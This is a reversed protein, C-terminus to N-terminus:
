NGAKNQPHLVVSVDDVYCFANAKGEALFGIEVKGGKVPIRELRITKWNNEGEIKYKFIRNNCNAYMELKSFGASNKVKATLTYYDDALKVHPSSTIAQFVKIKFDVKDSINLSREGVVVKRDNESNEHNLAPSITDLTIPNGGTVSFTWGTLQTQVPKVNSPIRKRDAEFSGNKVYNNDKGVSWEGTMANLNWSSLSNFYPTEGDFALPCWQNYGWGNGAFDAWRDGCFIVTEQKSGKVTYFFGTQTVHAYDDTCGNMVMMQNTPTYPGRIDDAVLYYAYSADWGYLESACMYYKGKYKFLCNGERGEGHYVQTCDLLNVWGEKVGIESVYIKNRGRGYSYILYSKGTEEDTFVTQDGTNTTGIMAMMNIQQHWTFEGTPTDATVILVQAGHQVVMAYKKLEKIYAVGLRGVWTARGDQKMVEKKTLVDGEFFWNVLDTSSYCTVSEFTSGKQTLSPDDRYAEAQKYHVGYWYYKKTGTVPDAFKFIGGGQSYIPHGDKTQWFTDNKINFPQAQVADTICVGTICILLLATFSCNKQRKM